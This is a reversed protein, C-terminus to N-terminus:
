RRILVHNDILHPPLIPRINAESTTAAERSETAEDSADAQTQRAAPRPEPPHPRLDPLVSARVPSRIIGVDGRDGRDNRVAPKERYPQSPPGKLPPKGLCRGVKSQEGCAGPPTQISHM